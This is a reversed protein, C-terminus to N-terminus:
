NRINLAKHLVEEAFDIGMCEDDAINFKGDKLYYQFTGFGEKNSWVIEVGGDNGEYKSWFEISEIKLM